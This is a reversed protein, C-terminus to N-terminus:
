KDGEVPRKAPEKVQDFPADKDIPGGDATTIVGDPNVIRVVHTDDNRVKVLAGRESALYRAADFVVDPSDCEDKRWVEGLEDIISFKM